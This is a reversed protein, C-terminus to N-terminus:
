FDFLIGSIVIRGKYEFKIHYRQIDQLLHNTVRTHNPLINGSGAPAGNGNVTYM